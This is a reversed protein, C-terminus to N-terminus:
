ANLSTKPTRGAMVEVKMRAAAMSTFFELSPAADPELPSWWTLAFKGDPWPGSVGAVPVSNVHAVSLAGEYRSEWSVSSALTANKTQFFSSMIGM